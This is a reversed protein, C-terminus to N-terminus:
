PSFFARFIWFILDLIIRIVLKEYTVSDLPPMLLYLERLSMGAGWKCNEKVAPSLTQHLVSSSAFLEGSVKEKEGGIEDM